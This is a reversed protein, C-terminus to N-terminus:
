DAVPSEIVLRPLLPHGWGQQVRPEAGAGRHWLEQEWLARGRCPFGAPCRGRGRRDGPSPAAGCPSERPVVGKAGPCRRRSCLWCGCQMPLRPQAGWPSRWPHPSRSRPPTASGGRQGWGVHPHWPIPAPLRSKAMVLRLPAIGVKGMEVGVSPTPLSGGWVCGAHRLQGVGAAGGTRSAWPPRPSGMVGCTVLSPAAAGAGLM